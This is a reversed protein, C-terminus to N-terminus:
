AFISGRKISILLLSTTVAGVAIFSIPSSILPTTFQSAAVFVVIGLGLGWIYSSLVKRPLHLANVAASLLINVTFFFLGAAILPFFTPEMAPMGFLFQTLSSGVLGLLVYLFAITPVFWRMIKRLEVRFHEDSSTGSLHPTASQALATGIMSIPTAISFAASAFASASPITEFWIISLLAISVSLNTVLQGSAVWLSKKFLSPSRKTPFLHKARIQMQSGFLFSGFMAVFAVFAGNVGWLPTLCVGVLLGSFAGIGEFAFSRKYLFDAILVPRFFTYLGYISILGAAFIAFVLDRQSIFFIIASLIFAALTFIAVRSYIWSSTSVFDDGAKQRRRYMGYLVGASTPWCLGVVVSITLVETVTTLVQDGLARGIIILLLLRSAGSIGM